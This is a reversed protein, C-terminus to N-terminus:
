DMVGIEQKQMGAEIRGGFGRLEVSCHDEAKALPDTNTMWKRSMTRACTEPDHDIWTLKLRCCSDGGGVRHSRIECVKEKQNLVDATFSAAQRGGDEDRPKRPSGQMEYPANPGDKDTKRKKAAQAVLQSVKGGAAGLEKERNLKIANVYARMKTPDQRLFNFLAVQKQESMFAFDDESIRDAGGADKAYGNVVELRHAGSLTPFISAVNDDWDLVVEDGAKFVVTKRVHSVTMSCASQLLDYDLLLGCKVQTEEESPYVFFSGPGEIAADAVPGGGLPWPLLQLEGTSTRSLKLMALAGDDNHIVQFVDRSNGAPLMLVPIGQNLRFSIAQEQSIRKSISRACKWSLSGKYELRAIFEAGRKGLGDANRSSAAKKYRDALSQCEPLNVVSRHQHFCTKGYNMSSRLQGGSRPENQKVNRQMYSLGGRDTEELVDEVDEVKDIDTATECPVSDPAVYRDHHLAGRLRDRQMSFNTGELKCRRDNNSFREKHPKETENENLPRVALCGEVVERMPAALRRDHLEAMHNALAGAKFALDNLCEKMTSNWAHDIAFGPKQKYIRAEWYGFQPDAAQFVAFNIHKRLSDMMEVVGYSGFKGGVACCDAILKRNQFWRSLARNKNIVNTEPAPDGPRHLKGHWKTAKEALDEPMPDGPKLQAFSQLIKYREHAQESFAIAADIPTDSKLIPEMRQLLWKHDGTAQSDGEEDSSLDPLDLYDEDTEAPIGDVRTNKELDELNMHELILALRYKYKKMFLAVYRTRFWRKDVSSQLPLSVSLISILDSPDGNDEAERMAQQMWKWKPTPKSEDRARALMRLRTDRLWGLNARKGKPGRMFSRVARALRFMIESKPEASNSDRHAEAEAFVLYLLENGVQWCCMEWSAQDVMLNVVRTKKNLWREENFEKADLLMEALVEPGYLFGITEMLFGMEEKSHKRNKDNKGQRKPGSKTQQYPLPDYRLSSTGDPNLKSTFHNPLKQSHKRRTADDHAITWFRTKGNDPIQFVDRYTEVNEGRTRAVISSWQRLMWRMQAEEPAQEAIMGDLASDIHERMSTKFNDLDPGIWMQPWRDVPLGAKQFVNHWHTRRCADNNTPRSCDYSLFGVLGDLCTTSGITQDPLHIAQSSCYAVAKKVHFIWNGTLGSLKRVHFCKQDSRALSIVFDDKGM